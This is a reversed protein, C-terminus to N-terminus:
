FRIGGGVMFGDRTPQAGVTLGHRLMADATPSRKHIFLLGTFVLTTAGFVALGVGAGITGARLSDGKNCVRTVAANTVTGPEGVVPRRAEQCLDVPENTGPKNQNPDVDNHPMGDGVGDPCTDCTEFATDRLEQATDNLALKLGILAGASGVALALSAGFGAWKWAPTPKELGFWIKRERPQKDEIPPPADEPLTSTSSGDAAIPEPQDDSPMLSDVIQAATADIKDPKLDAKTVPVTAEGEVVGQDVDLIRVEAQYDRGSPKLYGYVLRSVGLTKGGEALCSPEDNDCGM